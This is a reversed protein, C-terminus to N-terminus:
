AFRKLKITMTKLNVLAITGVTPELGMSKQYSTQEQWTGTNVLKVDRYAGAYAVHIHGSHILDPVKDLVLPDEPLPLVPTNEGYIPALHRHRVLAELVKGVDKQLTNYSINPLAQIADDLGQGHYVLISRGGVELWAPNGVFTIERARELIKRYGGTLPPQPLAKQAPDHNGPSLIIRVHEPVERLLKAAEELQRKVSTYELEWRQGPFVGVGDVLDGAVVLYRVRKAERDRERSLWDLFSEWLDRRFRKSGVHLDSALCLYVEPARAEERKRGAAPVEPLFIEQVLFSEDLRLVRAAFVSDPLISAAELALRQSRKPVILRLSGTLDEAELLLARETERRELLMMALTAEQGRKLRRADLVSSFSVGRQELLARLREYRDRFYRQFEEAKGAIRLPKLFGEEVRLEVEEPVSPLEAAEKVVHEEVRKSLAGVAELHRAEVVMADPERERLYELVTRLAQFPDEAEQLAKLAEGSLSYGETLAEEVLRRRVDERGGRM